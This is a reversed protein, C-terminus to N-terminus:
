FNFFMCVKQVETDVEEEDTNDVSDMADGVMEEILGAKEMERAMAQCAQSLEPIKILKNMSALVESSKQMCGAVKITSIQMQIQM